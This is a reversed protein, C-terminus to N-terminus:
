QKQKLVFSWSYNSGEDHTRSFSVLYWGEKALRNLESDVKESGSGTNIIVTKYQWAAASHPTCCGAVFLWLVSLVLPLLTKM